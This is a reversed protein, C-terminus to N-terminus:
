LRKARSKHTVLQRIEEFLEDIISERQKMAERLHAKWEEPLWLDITQGCSVITVPSGEDPLFKAKRIDEPLVVRNQRAEIKVAYTAGILDLAEKSLKHEGIEESSDIIARIKKGMEGSEPELRFEGHEGPVLFCPTDAKPQIWSTYSTIHDPIKIRKYSDVIATATRALADAGSTNKRPM